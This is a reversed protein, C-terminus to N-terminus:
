GKSLMSHIGKSVEEGLFVGTLVVQTIKIRLPRARDSWRTGQLRRTRNGSYDSAPETGMSHM